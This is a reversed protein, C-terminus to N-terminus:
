AALVPKAAFPVNADSNETPTGLPSAGPIASTIKSDTPASAAQALEHSMEPFWRLLSPSLLAHLMQTKTASAERAQADAEMEEKQIRDAEPQNGHRIAKKRLLNLEDMRDALDIERAKLQQLGVLSESAHVQMERATKLSEAQERAAKESVRAAADRLAVSAFGEAGFVERAGACMAAGCAEEARPLQESLRRLLAIEKDAAEQAAAIALASERSAAALEAAVGRLLPVSMELAASMNPPEGQAEAVEEAGLPELASKPVLNAIAEFSEQSHMRSECKRQFAALAGAWTKLAQDRQIAKLKDAPNLKLEKLSKDLHMKADTAEQELMAMEDDLNRLMTAKKKAPLMHKVLRDCTERLQASKALVEMERGRADTLMACTKQLKSLHAPTLVPETPMQPLANIQAVLQRSASFRYELASESAHENLIAVSEEHKEAAAIEAATQGLSDRLEPNAGAALLSRLIATHNNHACIMLPTFRDAVQYEVNPDVGAALLASACSSQNRLCSIALPSFGGEKSANPDAGSALLIQLATYSGNQAAVYAPTAGSRRAVNPDAGSELLLRLVKEANNRAALFVATSGAPDIANPDATATLLLRACEVNDHLAAVQLLTLKEAGGAHNLSAPKLSRLGKEFATADGATIFEMMQAHTEELASLAPTSSLLSSFM